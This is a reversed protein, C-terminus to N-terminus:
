SLDFARETLTRQLHDMFDKLTAEAVRHLVARDIVRGLGGMPPTYRASMAVQTTTPGLPAIELDAEMSPFIRPAVGAANWRLPLVVKTAMRIPEGLEVEVRHKVRLEDGFGVDAMLTEGHRDAHDALGPLWTGGGEVLMREVVETPVPLEIFYRAFM